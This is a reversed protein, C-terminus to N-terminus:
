DAPLGRGGTKKRQRGAADAAPTEGPPFLPVKGKRGPMDLVYHPLCLGSTEGWLGAMIDVGKGPPTWFPRTGAAPDCQFLYYPKVSIRQLGHLLAQMTARRDNVGRLLVAQNCVPIGAELLRECARAAQPTIERPHNFQTNLWLPRFRRLTRCLDATIRMPMVVPVRSGIRLVEVHPVTRLAELLFALRRDGLTLPDGGSLIVERITRRRRIYAVARAVDAETAVRPGQQWLRKRNCHRCHVACVNTALFLCRDRYRHILGPVPMHTNEELPDPGAPVPALEARCPVCQRLVPDRLDAPNGLSLYYPTVALPYPRVVASLGAMRAPSVGLASALTELDRIRRRFQLTWTAPGRSRDAPSAALRDTDSAM